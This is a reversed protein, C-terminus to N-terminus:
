RLYGRLFDSGSMSRGSPAILTKIKLFTKNACPIVLSDNENAQVVEASTVIVDNGFLNLHTKPYIQYARIKRELVIAEETAIDLVGDHKSMLTTVSVDNNKPQPTPKLQGTLIDPLTEILLKAGINALKDSLELKTEHDSLAIAQQTFIPGTDMGSDLKMISVATSTDGALIAAEIPSPGRYKPLQSPHINIIGIPEFISIINQPIIKGYSVLVAANAQLSLLQQEIESLKNPQLVPISNDLGIQKIPHIFLKNGRGKRADPKTVISVVEYGAELLSKLTPVSFQETGFFVLRNSSTM